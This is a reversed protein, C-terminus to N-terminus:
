ELKTLKLNFVRDGLMAKVIYVGPKLEMTEDINLQNAGKVIALEKSWVLKGSYDIIETKMVGDADAQVALSFEKSFPNPYPLVSVDGMDEPSVSIVRSYMFQGDLDLQKLRYYLTAPNAVFPLEDTYQYRAITVQSGQGDVWGIEEWDAKESKREITFGKNNHENTITWNLWVDGKKEQGTFSIMTVPLPNVSSDAGVGFDGFDSLGSRSLVPLTTTGTTTIHTGPIGWPLAGSIRKIMVLGTHNVVGNFSAATITATYAGGSLGNADAFSWYGTPAVKKVIIANQTLPLGGNTTPGSVFMGTLTGATLPTATYDITASRKTTGVALPFAYTAVASSSVWRRFIGQITGTGTLVGTSLTDKGLSLTVNAGTVIQGSILKLSDMVSCLTPSTASLTVTTNNDVILQGTIVNNINLVTVSGGGNFRLIDNQNPFTRAPIWNAALHISDAATKNWTYITPTPAPLIVVTYDETEGWTESSCSSVPQANYVNRIRLRTTGELTTIPIVVTATQAATSAANGAVEESAAFLGDQDFDIWIRHGEPWNGSGRYNITFSSGKRVTLTQAPYHIYSNLNPNCGSLLNSINTIGGVTVFNNVYDGDACGTSYPPECYNGRIQQSGAPATITPTQTNGGVVLSYCEADVVNGITAAPNIDYTLWFFNSGNVLPQNGPINFFTSGPLYPLTSGLQTTAAFMNSTGTYWVKINRINATDTSGTTTFSFQTLNVVSGTASTIVEMGIIHNNATSQGIKATASQTINTNIYAMPADILLSGAPAGVTPIRYVANVEISDLRADLVRGLVAGPNVDYALWLNTTDNNLLTDSLTFNFSGNPSFVTSGIQKATSFVTANGTAYLKASVIDTALTSGATNLKVTTILGLGCGNIRIPIRLVPNDNSGPTVNGTVQVAKSTNYSVPTNTVTLTYDQSEGGTFATCADGGGNALSTTRTRIRMRVEGSVATCPITIPVISAVNATSSTTVPYWESATFLGDDNYDIWVSISASSTTTVSLNYTQSTAVTTTTSDAKAFVTYFPAALTATTNHLNNFTVNKLLATGTQAPTCYAFRIQRSGAITTTTISQTTGDVIMSVCEGDIVNGTAATAAVDYTLWFYNSGTSLSQIGNVTFNLSGPLYSLTTGFQATTGFTNVGGTYWVKMNRINSTDTTGVANFVLQTLNVPAGTASTIVQVKMVQNHTTGQGVKSVVDQTPVANVYTMPNNIVLNGAPNGATPLRYAGLLEISDLRADVIHTVVSSGSIDYALWYNTTDNSLLTDNPTFVIAGNPSGVTAVLKNTNFVPSNGTSYLKALTLDTTANTSAATNFRFTTALADGCGSVVVPIRLVPKDINGPAVLGTQQIATSFQYTVPNDRIEIDYDEAEGYAEGSCASVPLTNYVDRIRLRTTGTLANCPITVTSHNMVTSVAGTAVLENADFSGDQNYDIWIKFGEGYVGSGQYHIVFSGSKNVVIGQSQYYNYSNSTNNCGTVLYSVNSIAGTTSFNNVFDGNSCSNTYPAPCYEARIQRSGVPATVTPSQTNGDVTVSVCGADVVNGITSAANIDYTLWFYNTGNTLAQVGPISFNLSAPLYLLTTGVQTTTAFSGVNGTYWMKINRINSTDTTGVVNLDFNTVNVPTGTASTVVQIGIMQNNVSGQGVKNTNTQTTTANLFTMPSTIRVNGAPNGNIPAYKVGTIFLSDLKADLVNLLGATASVDYTLWLYNAGKNLVQSGTVYFTGSPTAIASGFPTATSYSSNSGTFYVHANAIDVPNTSGATSLKLSTLTKPNLYGSTYVRIKLIQQNATAPLVDAVIQDVNSSDVVINIPTFDGEDAGLDPAAAGGNVSGTPGPRTHGDIDTLVTTPAGTSELPTITAAPIHLDTASVFPPPTNFTMSASDNDAATSLLRTYARLNTAPLISASNFLAQKYYGTGVTGGVQAIGQMSDNSGCFYANNNLTLNMTTTGASPLFISTHAVSTSGGSIMNSFINNRVDCGTLTTATLCFAFTSQSTATTLGLTTGSLHVTNHYVKHGTGASIKIGFVSYTTGFSGSTSMDQLIDAVMNNRLTINGGGALLIGNVGWSSTNRNYVKKVINREIIALPAATVVHIGTPQQASSPANGEIHSINNNSITYAGAANLVYIGRPANATNSNQVISTITNNSITITGSGINAALEIASLPTLVYSVINKITNNSVTLAAVGQVVIAKTYVTSAPTTFPPVGTLTTAQDGIINNTIMIGSSSATSSGIFAIGRACSNIVCNDVTLNNVTAGTAMATSVSAIATVPSGGNPGAMIGFTTNESGTASTASSLNRGTASGNINVNKILIKNADIHPAAGSTAIRIVSTYTTTSTAANTFTLNRNIGSTNPNDGDIIVSDTGNLEVVGRGQVGTYGVIVGDIVPRILISTYLALGDGSSNLISSAVDVFSASIEVTIDGQHTGANIATFASSLNTYSTPGTTAASATVSVQAIAQTSMMSFIGIVLLMRCIEKMTLFGKKM